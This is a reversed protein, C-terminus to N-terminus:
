EAPVLVKFEVPPRKIDCFHKASVDDLIYKLYDESQELWFMGGLSSDDSFDSEDDEASALFTSDSETPDEFAIQKSDVSEPREVVLTFKKLHKLDLLM